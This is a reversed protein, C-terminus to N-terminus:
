VPAKRKQNRALEACGPCSSGTSVHLKAAPGLPASAVFYKRLDYKRRPADLQSSQGRPTVPEELHHDHNHHIHDHSHHAHDGSHHHHHPGHGTAHNHHAHDGSHNLSHVIAAANNKGRKTPHQPSRSRPVAPLEIEEANKMDVPSSLVHKEGEEMENEDQTSRGASDPCTSDSLDSSGTPYGPSQPEWSLVSADRQLCRSPSSALPQEPSRVTVTSRDQNADGLEPASTPAEPQSTDVPLGEVVTQMALMAKGVRARQQLVEPCVPTEDHLRRSLLELRAKEAQVGSGGHFHCGEVSPLHVLLGAVKSRPGRGRAHELDVAGRQLTWPRPVQHRTPDWHGAWCFTITGPLNPVLLAIRVLSLPQTARQVLLLYTAESASLNAWLEAQPASAFSSRASKWIDAM